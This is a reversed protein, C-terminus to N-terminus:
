RTNNQFAALKLQMKAQRYYALIAYVTFQLCQISLNLVYNWAWTNPSIKPIFSLIIYWFLAPTSVVICAFCAIFLRQGIPKDKQFYLILPFCIISLILYFGGTTILFYFKNRIDPNGSTINGNATTPNKQDNDISKFLSLLRHYMPEERIIGNKLSLEYRIDEKSTDTKLLVNIKQLQDIKNNVRINYTFLFVDNIFYLTGILIFIAIGKTIGKVNNSVLIGFISDFLEKM